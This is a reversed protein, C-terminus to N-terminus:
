PLLVGGHELKCTTGVESDVLNVQPVYGKAGGREKAIRAKGHQERWDQEESDSGLVEEDEEDGEGYGSESGDSGNGDGDGDEASM